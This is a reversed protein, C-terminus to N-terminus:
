VGRFGPLGKTRSTQMVIKQSYQPIDIPNLIGVMKDRVCVDRAVYVLVLMRM